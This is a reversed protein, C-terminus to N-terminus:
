KRPKKEFIMGILRSLGIIFPFIGIVPLWNPLHENWFSANDTMCWLFVALAVGMLLMFIAGTVPNIREDGNGLSALLEPSLTQGKEALKEMMRHKSVRTKYGFYNGILVFLVIAGWFVVSADVFSHQFFM